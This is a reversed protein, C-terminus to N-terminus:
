LGLAVSREVPRSERVKGTARMRDCAADIRQLRTEHKYRVDRNAVEMAVERISRVSLAFAKGSPAGLRATIENYRASTWRGQHKLLHAEARRRGRERATAIKAAMARQERSPTGEKPSPQEPARTRGAPKHLKGGWDRDRGARLSSTILMADCARDIAALRKAQKHAVENRARAMLAAKPDSVMGPPSLTLTAGSKLLLRTYSKAVWAEKHKEHHREAKARVLDAARHVKAATALSVRMTGTEGFSSRLSVSTGRSGIGRGGGRGERSGTTGDSM